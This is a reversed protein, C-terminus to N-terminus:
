VVGATTAAVIAERVWVPVNSLPGRLTISAEEHGLKGGPRVKPGKLTVRDLVWDGADQQWVTHFQAPQFESGAVTFVRPADDPALFLQHREMWERTLIDAVIM